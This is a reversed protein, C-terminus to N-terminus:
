ELDIQHSWSAGDSLTVQRFGLLRAVDLFTFVDEVGMNRLLATSAWSVARARYLTRFSDDFGVIILKEAEEGKAFIAFRPPYPRQAQSETEAVIFGIRVERTADRRPEARADYTERSTVAPYYYDDHRDNAAAAGAILAAALAASIGMRTM